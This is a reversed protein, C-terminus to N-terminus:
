GLHRQVAILGGLDDLEACVERHLTDIVHDHRTLAFMAVTPRIFCKSLNKHVLFSPQVEEM